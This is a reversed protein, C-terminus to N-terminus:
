GQCLFTVSGRIIVVRENTVGSRYIDGEAEDMLGVTIVSGWCVDFGAMGLM